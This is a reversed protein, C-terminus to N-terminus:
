APPHGSRTFRLDAVYNAMFCAIPLIVKRRTRDPIFKLEPGNFGGVVASLGLLTLWAIHLQCFNNGHGESLHARTALLTLVGTVLHKGLGHPSVLISTLWSLNLQGFFDYSALPARRFLESFGEKLRGIV